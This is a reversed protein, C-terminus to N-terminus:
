AASPFLIVISQHASNEFSAVYKRVSSKLGFFTSLSQMFSPTNFRSSCLLPSISRNRVKDIASMMTSQKRGKSPTTTKGEDDDDEWGKDGDDQSDAEGGLEDSESSDDCSDNGDVRDKDDDDGGRELEAAAVRMDEIVEPDDEPSYTLPFSRSKDYYDEVDPDAAAGM